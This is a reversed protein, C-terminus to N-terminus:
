INKKFIELADKQSDQLHMAPCKEKILNETKKIASGRSILYASVLTSARGNGNKCHVHIKKKQSVLKVFV